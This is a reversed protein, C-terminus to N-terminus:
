WLIPCVAEEDSGVNVIVKFCSELSWGVHLWCTLEMPVIKNPFSLGLGTWILLVWFIDATFSSQTNSSSLPVTIRWIQSGKILFYNTASLVDKLVQSDFVGRDVDGALEMVFISCCIWNSLRLPCARRSFGSLSRLTSCNLSTICILMKTAQLCTFSFEMVNGLVWGYTFGTSSAQFLSAVTWEWNIIRCNSPKSSESFHDLSQKCYVGFRGKVTVRIFNLVM